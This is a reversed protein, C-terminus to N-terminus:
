AGVRRKTRNLLTAFEEECPEHQDPRVKRFRDAVYGGLYGGSRVGQLILGIHGHRNTAVSSVTYIQGVRLRDARGLPREGNDVCVALDGPKWDGSM